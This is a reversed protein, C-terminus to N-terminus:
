KLEFRIVMSRDHMIRNTTTIDQLRYVLLGYKGDQEAMKGIALNEKTKGLGTEEEFKWEAGKWAGLITDAAADIDEIRTLEGNPSIVVDKKEDYRLLSIRAGEGTVLIRWKDGVAELRLGVKQLAKFERKNWLELYKEYEKTTLGLKVDFPLPVGPKATASYEKFWIPDRKAGEKVKDIYVQIEKPPLVVVIEGKYNKGAEMYSSFPKPTRTQASAALTVLVAMAVAIFHNKTFAIM